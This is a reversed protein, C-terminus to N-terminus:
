FINRIKSAKEEAIDKGNKYFNETTKAITEIKKIGENFLNESKKKADSIINSAIEGAREAMESADSLIEDTKKTIEKILKKGGKPALALGALAGLTGGFLFGKLFIGTNKNKKFM